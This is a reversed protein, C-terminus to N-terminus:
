HRPPMPAPAIVLEEAVTKKAWVRWRKQLDYAADLKRGRKTEWPLDLAMFPIVRKSAAIHDLYPVERNIKHDKIYVIDCLAGDILLLANLNQRDALKKFRYDM